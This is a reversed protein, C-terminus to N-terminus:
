FAHEFHKLEILEGQRSILLSVVDFRLAKGHVQERQLYDLALRRLKERKAANVAEYGEGFRKSSRSKVEVFVLTGKQEAVIDIEGITSRYNLARIAYGKKKLYDVAYQEGLKGLSIRENMTKVPMTRVPM